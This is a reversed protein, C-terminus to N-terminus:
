NAIVQAILGVFQPVIAVLLGAIRIFVGLWHPWDRARHSRDGIVAALLAIFLLVATILSVLALLYPSRRFFIRWVFSGAVIAGALAFLVKWSRTDAVRWAAWFNIGGVALNLGVFFLGVLPTYTPNPTSSPGVLGLLAVPFIWVGLAQEVLLWHGPQHFFASGARRWYLAFGLTTLALATAICYTVGMSSGIFDSLGIIDRRELVQAFWMFVSTAATAVLIHHVRLPPLPQRASTPQENM